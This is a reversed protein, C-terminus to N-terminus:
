TRKLGRANHTLAEIMALSEGALWAAHASVVVPFTFLFDQLLGAQVSARFTRLM